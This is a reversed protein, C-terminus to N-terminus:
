KWLLSAGADGGRQHAKLLPYQGSDVQLRKKLRKCLKERGKAGEWRERETLAGTLPLDPFGGHGTLWRCGHKWPAPPLRWCLKWAICLHGFNSSNAGRCLLFTHFLPSSTAFGRQQKGAKRSNCRAHICISSIGRGCSVNGSCLEREKVERQLCQCQMWM